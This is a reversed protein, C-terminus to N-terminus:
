TREDQGAELKRRLCRLSGAEMVARKPGSGSVDLRQKTEEGEQIDKGEQLGLNRPVYGM